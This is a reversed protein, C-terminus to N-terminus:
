YMVEVNGIELDKMDDLFESTILSFGDDIDASAETANGRYNTYVVLKGVTEFAGFTALVQEAGNMLHKIRSLEVVYEWVTERQNSESQYYQNKIVYQTTM